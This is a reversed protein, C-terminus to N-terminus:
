RRRAAMSGGISATAPRTPLRGPGRAEGGGASHAGAHLTSSRPLGLGAQASPPHASSSSSSPLHAKQDELDRQMVELEAVRKDYLAKMKVKFGNEVARTEERDGEMQLLKRESEELREMVAQLKKELAGCQGKRERLEGEGKALADRAKQLDERLVRVTVESGAAAQLRGREWALEKELERRREEGRGMEGKWEEAQRRLDATSALARKLEAVEQDKAATAEELEEKFGRERGELSQRLALVHQDARAKAASLQELQASLAKMRKEGSAMKERLEEEEAGREPQALQGKLKEMESQLARLQNQLRQCTVELDSIQATKAVVEKNLASIKGQLERLQAILRKEIAEAESGEEERQKRVTEALTKAKALEAELREAEKRAETMEKTRLEIQKLLERERAVAGGSSEGNAKLTLTADSLRKELSGARGSEEDREKELVKVRAELEKVAAELKAKENAALDRAKHAAEEAELLKKQLRELDAASIGRSSPPSAAQANRVLEAREKLWEEKEKELEDM